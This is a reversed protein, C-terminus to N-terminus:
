GAPRHSTLEVREGDATLRLVEGVGRALYLQTEAGAGPEAVTAELLDTFRGAEVTASTGTEGIRVAQQPRGDKSWVVFGDGLRPDAPMALGALAGDTGAEWVGEQGFAWVNGDRDQAFWSVEEVAEVSGPERSTTLVQTTEVGAVLRTEELVEVTEAPGAGEVAPERTWRAGPVLPLWPNDVRAVFDAPDPEPTPVVLGDVGRPGVQEPASGCGALTGLALAVGALRAVVRSRRLGPRTMPTLM